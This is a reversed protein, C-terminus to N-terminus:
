YNFASTFSKKGVSFASNRNENCSRRQQCNREVTHELTSVYGINHTTFQLWHSVQCCAKHDPANSNTPVFAKQVTYTYRKVKWVKSGDMLFLGGEDTHTDSLEEGQILCLPQDLFQGLAAYVGVIDDDVLKNERVHLPRTFHTFGAM